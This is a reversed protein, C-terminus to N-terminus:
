LPLVGFRYQFQDLTSTFTTLASVVCWISTGPTSEFNKVLLELNILETTTNDTANRGSGSRVAAGIIRLERNADTISLATATASAVTPNDGYFELYLDVFSVVKHVISIQKILGSGGAHTLINPIEFKHIFEGALYAGSAALTPEILNLFGPAVIRVDLGHKSGPIPSGTVTRSTEEVSPDLSTKTVINGM